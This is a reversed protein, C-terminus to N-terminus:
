KPTEEQTALTKAPGRPRGKHLLKRRAARAADQARFQAAVGNRGPTHVPLYGQKAWWKVCATTVGYKEAVEVTTLLVAM